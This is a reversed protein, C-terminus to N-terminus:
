RLEAVIRSMEDAKREMDAVLRFQTRCRDLNHNERHIRFYHDGDIHDTLFRMGCELTMLKAAFPLLELERPTVSDGLAELYAKTYARFYNLDFSVKDLDREDEAATSAGFRLSDGYDYLMSGPMVTDLDIVCIGKGTKADLMVNNLKTDNHTVRLPVSGDAIADTIIGMEAARDLAFRIEPEVSAARGVPDKALTERFIRLRDPTDHFHPITEHLKEAPFDSLMRQFKGFARASEAFVEPSPASDISVANEIFLYVRYCDGDPTRYYSHNDTTPIVTLTERMPDGGAAVIKARLFSTVALINEMVGDPDRFIDTNIRQLIFRPSTGVLYTSNIHGNGYPTSIHDLDYHRLIDSAFNIDKMKKDSFALFSKCKKREHTIIVNYM